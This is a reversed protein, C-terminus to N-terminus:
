VWTEWEAKTVETLIVDVRSDQSNRSDLYGFKFKSDDVGIKQAVVDFLLEDMNATDVKRLRNNGYFFPYYYCRDIRILSMEAIKFLPINPKIRSAWLAWEAKLRKQPRPSNVTYGFEYIINKSGPLSLLCFKVTNAAGEM